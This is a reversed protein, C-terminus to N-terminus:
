RTQCRFHYSLEHNLIEDREFVTSETGDPYLLFILHDADFLEAARGTTLPLMPEYTYGYARLEEISTRIDPTSLDVTAPENEPAAQVIEHLSSPPVSFVPMDQTASVRADSTMAIREIQERVSYPLDKDRYTVRREPDIHAVSVYDGGKEELRNWVTLGNGMHGYGLDYQKESKPPPTPEGFLNGISGIDTLFKDVEQKPDAKEPIPATDQAAAPEPPTGTGPVPTVQESVGIQVQELEIGREKIIEQFKGEINEIMEAATKRIVDLSANLEKLEKGRSWTALYGFSNDGTEIDFHQCVAYSVSEAEVEETRRDILKAQGDGEVVLSRDHLMAHTIEHIIASVTQVESMGERIVIKEGDLCLGDTDEPLPEFVIPLPSTARLADIFAEYQEVNGTINKILEPLPKGDTQSVDFVSVVKFRAIQRETTEIVPLGNDDLVPLKTKPDLKEKEERITFPTPALISIAKEGKKVHRSFKNIWANFGAVSSAQPMQMHILITNRTSYSHFQSMTKLYDAYKDSEFLDKVGQELKNTLEKVKEKSSSVM